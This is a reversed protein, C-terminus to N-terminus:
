SQKGKVTQVAALAARAQQLEPQIVLLGALDREMVSVCARLAEVCQAFIPEDPLPPLPQASGLADAGRTSTVHKAIWAHIEDEIWASSKGLKIPSPFTGESILRYVSSRGLGVVHLVEALRVLRRNVPISKTTYEPAGILSSTSDLWGPPYGAAQELRRAAREGISNGENYSPSLYQAIQARDYGLREAFRAVTGDGFEDIMRQLRARRNEHIGSLASQHAAEGTILWRPDAGLVEAFKYLHKSSDARGTEVSAVTTQSVGSLQALETQTMRAKQRADRLREAVTPITKTM